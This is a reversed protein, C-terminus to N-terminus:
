ISVPGQEEWDNSARPQTIAKVYLSKENYWLLQQHQFVMIQAISTKKFRDNRQIYM